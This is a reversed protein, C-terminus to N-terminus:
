RKFREWFNKKKKKKKQGVIKKKEDLYNHNQNNLNVELSSNLGRTQKDALNYNTNSLVLPKLGKGARTQEDASNYNTNSLVPKLGKDARTQEDASNYITNILSVELELEENNSDVPFIANQLFGHGLFRFGREFTSIQTKEVHLTLDLFNLIQAVESYAQNIREKSRSLVLFDDAYRVLKLDLSSIMLDFDNLYLNALIPSIVAGQPVGKEPFIMGKETSISNSIWAKVLCLIKLSDVLERFKLLLKNQNINDFYKVIDADLVWQYGLDRWYAVKRVADLYSLNPRYAFSADSFKAEMIPYLVNLLAQQVIRDRVTPIRLERLKGNKKPILVQKYPLPQYSGNQVSDRLQSINVTKNEAFNLITESDIGACGQNQAVKIWAREFNSLSLFEQEIEM